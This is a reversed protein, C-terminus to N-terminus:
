GATQFVGKCATAGDPVSKSGSFVSTGATGYNDTWQNWIRVGWRRNDSLPLSSDVEVPDMATVSHSWWNYDVPCPIRLLLCTMLQDMTLNRDYVPPSLDMWADNIKFQAADAWTAPNDNSRLMSKEKWTRVSPCGNKIYFELALPNWGGEDRFNKIMCAVAHCSPRIYPQGDRMRALVLANGPSYAWCYGQGNQDLSPIRVGNNGIGANRMDSLTAKAQYMDRIMSPWDARPILAIDFKKIGTISGVPQKSYDRPILGFGLHQDRIAPSDEMVDRYNKDDIVYDDPRIM